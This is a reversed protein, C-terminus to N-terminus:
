FLFKLLNNFFNAKKDKPIKAWYQDITMQPENSMGELSKNERKWANIGGVLELVNNFGNQRMWDAAAASRGGVLCYIYVTKNKDVYQIRDNFQQKDTWDAQLANKIHGSRFEGATRVDLVQIDQKSIGKEFADPVLKRSSDQQGSCSAFSFLLLFFGANKM